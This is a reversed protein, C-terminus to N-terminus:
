NPSIISSRPSHLDCKFPNQRGTPRTQCRNNPMKTLDEFKIDVSNTKNDMYCSSVAKALADFDDIEEPGKNFELRKSLLKRLTKVKGQTDEKAYLTALKIWIAPANEMDIVKVLVSPALNAIVIHCALGSDKPVGKANDWLSPDRGNLDCKTRFAWLKYNETGKLVIQTQSANSNNNNTM